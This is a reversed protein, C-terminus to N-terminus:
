ARDEQTYVMGDEEILPAHKSNMASVYDFVSAPGTCAFGKIFNYEHTITGKADIIAQKAAEVVSDPTDKPWSMIVSKQRALGMALTALLAVLLSGLAFRM